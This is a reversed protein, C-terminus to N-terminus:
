VRVSRVGQHTEISLGLDHCLDADRAVEGFALVHRSCVDIFNVTHFGFAYPGVASVDAERDYVTM